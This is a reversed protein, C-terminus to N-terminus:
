SFSHFLNHGSRVGNNIEFATGNLNVTTGVTNDPVVQAFARDGISAVSILVAISRFFVQNM